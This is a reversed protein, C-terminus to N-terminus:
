GAQGARYDQVIGAFDPYDEGLGELHESFQQAHDECAVIDDALREAWDLIGALQEATAGQLARYRAKVLVRHLARVSRATESTSNLM